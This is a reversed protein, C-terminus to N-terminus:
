EMVEGPPTVEPKVGEGRGSNVEPKRLFLKLNVGSNFFQLFVCSGTKVGGVGGSNVEPKRLFLKLNVGSYFFQLFVCSGTKM